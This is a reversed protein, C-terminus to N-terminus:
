VHFRTVTSWEGDGLSLRGQAARAAEVTGFFGAVCSGSGCLLTHLAGADAMRESASQVGPIAHEIVHSFDNHLLPALRDLRAAAFAACAARAREFSSEDLEHTHQAEDLLAYARATDSGAKPKLLLIGWEPPRRCPYPTVIEGTGAVIKLGPILASPVDSGVRAAARRLTDASVVEGNKELALAAIGLLAAAADASGGGLGAQLPIQKRITIHAKPLPVDLARAARFVLNDSASIEYGPCSVAFSEAPSFELIDALELSAIVSVLPHLRGALRGIELRLNLKAHARRAARSAANVV